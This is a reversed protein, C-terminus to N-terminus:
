EKLAKIYRRKQIKVAAKALAKEKTDLNELDEPLAEAKVRGFLSQDQNEYISAMKIPLEKHQTPKDADFGLDKYTMLRKCELLSNILYQVMDNDWRFNKRKLNSTTKKATAAAEM